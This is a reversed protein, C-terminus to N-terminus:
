TQLHVTVITGRGPGSEVEVRGGWSEVLRRVIALGLGAGSTTTSFRPEFVRPLSDVPIGAGDDSVRIIGPEVTVEVVRAGANRANELLNVLVEKVEDARAAGPAGPQATLRVEYGEEALRYLQVVEGVVVSLDIRDLPQTQDAPAAFRSFARAITDLRDIEALIREATEDLTRDFEGRRERYVRQLHQMGLRMPTLPNKIEHAVQRAMEGWALVREARSVDTVDNLAMVVGRVDPGLSALQLTLRRGGVELEVTGDTAPDGLFRRVAAALPLWEGTLRELFPEGEELETGLLDVAQRNAILVRGGPDVGVVGTAVTALVTATRRRAHELASQSSRIDAAMREFAAFVPEFELPPRDSHHPMPQGKGLALASRRLEAVPRSLTRAAIQAGALAAAVGALTALLLVLALDLQRVGLSVDDALQPTALVGLDAPPGPQVVRYGVREALQPISGDQTVELEGELALAEFADPDMLQGVVGLDELVATSTGALIGGQYLALDADIRRSLEPLQKSPSEANRLVGGASLVADHLTQTILLDRSRQAEDTLRAFSWAAFGVAPLIFFLGLTAALRIRFSRALTRWRPRPPRVGAVLEAVFWLLALVAADLLVVLVGRVLLPVPGRLDIAAHIARSVGALVLPYESRLSWGERRWRSAAPQPQVSGAPPSLTLTYLPADHRSPNLLRGVRGRLVLESRPGVSATMVAEPAIRLLLVYHVGPVRTLQAVHLSDNPPLDRVLTSLVSPPLDLSDLTLEDRLTGSRSWLGLHAPYGQGGLSSGHWLAYMESANAPPAAHRVQDGFRELLPLALPDPETGLRAVDRQAVQLRGSLEAGWTVLAASSGAVLAIGSIVMWRPAPLTVLLLAPTWLFTYWDPWGGRPSWVLVGIVAAAFAIGVGAIIRWRTHSEDGSGRFLSAAGVILASAAVLLTLQWTLWLGVSVGRAPPTIGRGLGSIFYPAVLLLVAGVVVGYWRRPLRQRWLWVGAMTLLIGALGLVGASSSLPGLLPRFFTAPSFLPQLGLAAGVPARAALWLLLTLLVFREAPQTALSLAVVFVLLILWVAARSARHFVLQKAAGQEPPVPQVSFLLRPGATTPEEYDFVDPSEPARGAPYVALGVETRARFLEALSRGRDPVAPHAWILVGAVATRGDDSHRRAELVVYYGSARAATSDGESRPPLRHRGAWAWPAGQQDFVVVSMEPGAAPVLRDLLHLAAARNDPSSAIAAEALRDARHLASHLDGALRQSAATVRSEREQPWRNEIAKLKRHSVTLSVALGLLLSVLARRRWGALPWLAAAGAAFCVWAIWVWAASPQRFWESAAGGAALVVVVWLRGRHIL